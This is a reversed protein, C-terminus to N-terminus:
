PDLRAPRRDFRAALALAALVVVVPEAPARIRHAGYFVVTTVLVAALPVLLWWRAGIRRLVAERWGAVALLALVWWCAIGAWVAWTEKDEGVDMHVMAGLGYVDLARGVRAAMVLPVRDVHDGVYDLAQDRRERSRDSADTTGDAESEPLPGLCRIDWGGIDDYYSIPCNAGLLTSGENTTFLVPEDFRGLNYITWPVLTALTAAGIALTPLWSGRRRRVVAVSLVVFGIALLVLESRALAALGAVLGLVAGGSVTPRVHFGVAVFLALAVLLIALAESMVISDNIWLNPYVAAIGAAFLGARDALADSGAPALAVLRRAALGIVAVTAIGVVTMAFRQAGVSDGGGISWPTLYLSTLPGHEAGPQGSLGDQFWKGESNLGAQISYYISDNLLLEDDIRAVFLYLLRWIAGAATIVVLRARFSTPVARRGYGVPRGGGIRHAM